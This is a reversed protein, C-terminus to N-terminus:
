AVAPRRAIGKNVASMVKQATLEMSRRALKKDM